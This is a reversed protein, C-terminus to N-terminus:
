FIGNKDECVKEITKISGLALNLSIWTAELKMDRRELVSEDLSFILSLSELISTNEVINDILSAELCEGNIIIRLTQILVLCESETLNSSTM